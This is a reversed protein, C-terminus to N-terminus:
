GLGCEASVLQAPFLTIAGDEFRFGRGVAVATDANSVEYPDGPILSLGDGYATSAASLSLTVLGLIRAISQLTRM